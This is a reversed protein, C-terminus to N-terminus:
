NLKEVSVKTTSLGYMRAHFPVKQGQAQASISGGYRQTANASRTFGTAEDLITSGSSTGTIAMQMAGPGFSFSKQGDGISLTGAEAISILGNARGQLTRRLNM